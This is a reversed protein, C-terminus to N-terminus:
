GQSATGECRQAVIVRYGPTRLWAFLRIDVGIYLYADKAFREINITHAIGPVPARMEKTPCGTFYNIFIHEPKRLIFKPLLPSFGDPLGRLEAVVIGHAIKALFREFVSFNMTGLQFPRGDHRQILNAIRSKRVIAHVEVKLDRDMPSGDLLGPPEFVPLMLSGPHENVATPMSAVSGDQSRVLLPLTIPPKRRSPLGQQVRFGKLIQRLVLDEIKKTADQCETCSAKRLVIGGGLGFPFPHEKTLPEKTSGCYICFGVPPYYKTSSAASPPDIPTM